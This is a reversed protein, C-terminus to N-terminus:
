RAQERDKPSPEPTLRKRLGDVEARLVALEQERPDAKTAPATAKKNGSRMMFWMMLGMGVPCALAPLVYLIESM